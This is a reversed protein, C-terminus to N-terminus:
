ANEDAEEKIGYKRCLQGIAAGSCFVNITHYLYLPTKDEVDAIACPLEIMQHTKMLSLAEAVEREALKRTLIGTESGYRRIEELNTVTAKLGQGLIKDRYILKMLLVLLTSTEGFRESGAGQGTLRFFHDQPDYVLELGMVQFYDTLFERHRMCFGYRPNDKFTGKAADYKTELICSQRLLERITKRLEEEDRASLEKIYEIM